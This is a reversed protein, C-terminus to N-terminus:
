QIDWDILSLNMADSVSLESDNKVLLLASRVVEVTLSYQDARKLADHIADLEETPSM